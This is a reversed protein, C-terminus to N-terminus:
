DQEIIEVDVHHVSFATAAHMGIEEAPKDVARAVDRIIHEGAFMGQPGGFGRFATNSPLNTKCAWGRVRVNPIYYANQFHFMARELVQLALFPFRPRCRGRADNEIRNKAFPLSYFTQHCLPTLVESSDEYKQEFM